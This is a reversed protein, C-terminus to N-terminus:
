GAEAGAGAKLLHAAGLDPPNPGGSLRQSRWLGAGETAKSGVALRVGRMGQPCNVITVAWFLVDSTPKGLAHASQYLNVKYLKTDVARWSLEANGVTVKDGDRFIVTFQDPFISRRSLPRFSM